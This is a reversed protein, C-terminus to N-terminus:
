KDSEIIDGSDIRSRKIPLIVTGRYLKYYNFYSPVGEAVQEKPGNMVTYHLHPYIAEGSFGVTGVPDGVKIVQGSQVRLSGKELHLMVSFEGNGHDIIV